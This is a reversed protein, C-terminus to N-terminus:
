ITTRKEAQVAATQTEKPKAILEMKGTLEAAKEVHHRVCWHELGKAIREV